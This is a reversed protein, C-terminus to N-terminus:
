SIREKELRNKSIDPPIVRRTFVFTTKGISQQKGSERRANSAAPPSAYIDNPQFEPPKDLASINKGAAENDEEKSLVIRDDTV